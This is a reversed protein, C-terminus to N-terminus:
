RAGHTHGGPLAAYLDGPQVARSDLCVGTVVVDPVPMGAQLEAGATGAVDALKIGTPSVPRFGREIEGVGAHPDAGQGSGTEAVTNTVM